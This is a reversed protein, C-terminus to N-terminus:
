RMVEVEFEYRWVWENQEFSGPGHLLEWYGVFEARDCFGEKRAEAETIEQVREPRVDIICLRLRSMWRCMFRANRYRGWDGSGPVNTAEYRISCDGGSDAIQSPPLHNHEPRARWAERVWAIDGPDFTPEIKRGKADVYGSDLCRIGYHPQPHIIRRTVTKRRDLLASVMPGSMLIPREKM